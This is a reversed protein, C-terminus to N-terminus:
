VLVTVTLQFDVETGLGDTATVERVFEGSVGAPPAMTLLGETTLTMWPVDLADTVVYGVPFEAHVDAQLQEVTPERSAAIVVYNINRVAFIRDPHAIRPDVGGILGVFELADDPEVVGFGPIQTESIPLWLGDYLALQTTDFDDTKSSFFGSEINGGIEKWAVLSMNYYHVSWPIRLEFKITPWHRVLNRGEDFIAVKAFMLQRQYAIGGKTSISDPQAMAQFAPDTLAGRVSHIVQVQRHEVIEKERESLPAPAQRKVQRIYQRYDPRDRYVAM